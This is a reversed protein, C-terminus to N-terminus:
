IPPGLTPLATDPTPWQDTRTQKHTDVIRPMHRASQERHSTHTSPSHCTIGLAKPSVTRRTASHWGLAALITRIALTEAYQPAAMQFGDLSYCAIDGGLDCVVSRVYQRHDASQADFPANETRKM